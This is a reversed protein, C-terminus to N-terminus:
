KSKTEGDGAQMVSAPPAKVSPEGLTKGRKKVAVEKEHNLREITREWDSKSYPFGTPQGTKPNVVGAGADLRGARHRLELEIDARRMDIVEGTDAFRISVKEALRKPDYPGGADSRAFYLGVAVLFIVGAVAWGIWPSNAILERFRNM